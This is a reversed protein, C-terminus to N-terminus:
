LNRTAHDKVAKELAEWADPAGQELGHRLALRLVDSREFDSEDTEVGRAEALQQGMVSLQGTSELAAILAAVEGDWVSVTKQRDDEEFAVLEALVAEVLEQERAEGSEEDIRSGHDTAQRLEEIDDEDPM